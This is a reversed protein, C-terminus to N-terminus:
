ARALVLQTTRDLFRRPLGDLTATFQSQATRTGENRGWQFYESVQQVLGWGTGEFGVQPQGALGIISEIMEDRKAREPLVHRLIDRQADVDVKVSHLQKARQVYIEAYRNMGTLVAEAERIRDEPKGVHKISWRQPAKASFSALGLQNMCLGRLMVVAIEIAKSRDHSTRVVVYCEHPDAKRGLKLDLARELPLKVVMFGQKTHNLTGAASIEPNLADLFAFAEDYQVVKYDTASVVDFFQGTDARVIAQRSPVNVHGGDFEVSVPRTEVKFDLGGLKLAEKIPVAKDIVTGVKVWPLARDSFTRAVAPEPTPEPKPAPAKAKTATAKARTTKAKAEITATM